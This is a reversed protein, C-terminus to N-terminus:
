SVPEIRCPVYRHLPTGALEDRHTNQTLRNVNAGYTQGRYCLGFGHPITVLGPRTQRNIELEIEIEGATTAVKVMQGDVLHNKEADEPHMIATCARRKQNWEPNRMLTNANTDMHLGAMLIYPYEGTGELARTERDADIRSVWDSLEPIFLQVRGDDTGIREMPTEPDLRGIWLGEPHDLVAQFIDEGMMPSKAFGARAANEQFSEPASMLLGWLAALHASKLEKGLTEALVFPAGAMAGPHEGAFKLLAM